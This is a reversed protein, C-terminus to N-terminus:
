QSILRALNGIALPLHRIALLAQLGHSGNAIRRENNAAQQM